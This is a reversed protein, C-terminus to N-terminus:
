TKKTKNLLGKKDKRQKLENLEQTLQSRKKVLSIIKKIKRKTEM